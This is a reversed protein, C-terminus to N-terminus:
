NERKDIKELEKSRITVCNMLHKQILNSSKSSALIANFETAMVVVHHKCKFSGAAPSIRENPMCKPLRNVSRLNSLIM